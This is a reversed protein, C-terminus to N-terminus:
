EYKNDADYDVIGIKVKKRWFATYCCALQDMQKAHYFRLAEPVIYISTQNSEVLPIKKSCSYHNKRHFYKKISDDFPDMYPIRCGETYVLYGPVESDTIFRIKFFEGRYKANERLYLISGLSMVFLLLLRKSIRPKVKLLFFFVNIKNINLKHIM